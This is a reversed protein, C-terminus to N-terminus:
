TAGFSLRGMDSAVRKLCDETVQVKEGGLIVDCLLITKGGAPYPATSIVTGFQGHYKIFKHALYNKSRGDEKHMLSLKVKDGNDISSKGETTKDM